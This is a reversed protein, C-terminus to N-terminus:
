QAGRANIFFVAVIKSLDPGWDKQLVSEDANDAADAVRLLLPLHKQLADIHDLFKERQKGIKQAAVGVGKGFRLAVLADTVQQFLHQGARLDANQDEICLVPDYVDVREAPIKEADIQGDPVKRGDTQFFCCIVLLVQKGEAIMRQADDPIEINERELREATKQDEAVGLPLGLRGVLQQTQFARTREVPDGPM